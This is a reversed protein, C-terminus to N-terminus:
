NAEWDSSFMLALAKAEKLDLSRLGHLFNSGMKLNLSLFGTKILAARGRLVFAGLFRTVLNNLPKYEEPLFVLSM